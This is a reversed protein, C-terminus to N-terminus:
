DEPLEREIGEILQTMRDGREVSEDYAFTLEPLYRLRIRLGIQRRIYSTANILADLTQKKEEQSGFVSVFVRAYRLDPSVKVRTVTAFGVRPDRVQQTIIASIETKLEEALRQSRYQM